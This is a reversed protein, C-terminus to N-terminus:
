SLVSHHHSTPLRDLISSTARSLDKPHQSSASFISWLLLFALSLSVELAPGATGGPGGVPEAVPASTSVQAASSFPWTDTM